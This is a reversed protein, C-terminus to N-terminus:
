SIKEISLTATGVATIAAIYDDSTGSVYVKRFVGGWLRRSTTLAVITSGGQLFFCDASSTIVYWGATLQTSRATTTTVSVLVPAATNKDKAPGNQIATSSRRQM